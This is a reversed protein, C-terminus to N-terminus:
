LLSSHLPIGSDWHSLEWEFVLNWLIGVAEKHHTEKAECCLSCNRIYNLTRQLCDAAQVFLAPFAYACSRSLCEFFPLHDVVIKWAIGLAIGAGQDGGGGM